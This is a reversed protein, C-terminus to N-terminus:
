MDEVYQDDEVIQHISRRSFISVALLGVLCVALWSIAYTLIFYRRGAGIPYSFGAQATTIIAIVKMAIVWGTHLGISPILSQTREVVLCLVIGVLFLGFGAELIGAEGYRTFIVSLYTLGSFPDFHSPAWSKVPQIFHVTAYLLSSGGAAILFPLSKRLMAFLVFRFFTEEICSVLIGVPLAKLFKLVLSQTSMQQWTLDGSQVIFPLLLLCSGLSLLCGISFSQIGAPRLDAFSLYPQIQGRLGDLRLYRRRLLIIGLAVGMAVRDFVRSFPWPFDAVISHLGYFVWPTILASLLLTALVLLAIETLFRSLPIELKSDVHCSMM